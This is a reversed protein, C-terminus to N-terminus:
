RVYIYLEGPEVNTSHGVSIGKRTKLPEPLSMFPSVNDDGNIHFVRRADAPPSAPNVVANSATDWISLENDDTITELKFGFAIIEFKGVAIPMAYGAHCYLPYM